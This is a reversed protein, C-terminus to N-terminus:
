ANRHKIKLRHRWLMLVREQADLVLALAVTQLRVVHHWWRNGEPATVDVQTLRVWPNDYLTREGHV